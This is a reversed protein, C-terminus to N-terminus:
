NKLVSMIDIDIEKFALEVFERVSYNKGTAVVYDEPKDKQLMM